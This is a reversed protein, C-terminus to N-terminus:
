WPWARGRDRLPLVAGAAPAHVLARAAQRARDPLVLGPVVPAPDLAASGRDGPAADRGAPRRPRPTWGLREFVMGSFELALVTPLADRVVVGRVDGLAPEVDRAPALPELAPGPRVDPGGGRAHLRPVRHPDHPARDAQLAQRQLRLRRHHHHLRGAALGVGCLIDFGVWLGWPFRDSLHTVAGLGQTFRVALSAAAGLVSCCTSSARAWFGPSRLRRMRARM